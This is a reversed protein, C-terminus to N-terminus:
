GSGPGGRRGDARAARAPAPVAPRRPPRRHSAVAARERGRGLGPDGRGSRGARTRKAHTEQWAPTIANVDFTINLVDGDHDIQVTKPKQRLLQALEAMENRAKIDDASLHEHGDPGVLPEDSSLSGQQATWAGPKPKEAAGGGLTQKEDAM